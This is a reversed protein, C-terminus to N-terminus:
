VPMCFTRRVIYWYITKSCGVLKKRFNGSAVDESSVDLFLKTETKIYCLKKSTKSYVCDIGSKEDAFKVPVSNKKFFVV